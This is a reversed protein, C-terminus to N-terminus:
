YLDSAELLYVIPNDLVPCRIKASRTALSVEYYRNGRHYSIELSTKSKRLHYGNGCINVMTSGDDFYVSKTDAAWKTDGYILQVWQDVGDCAYGSRLKGQCGTIVKSLHRSVVMQRNLNIPKVFRLSMLEADKIPNNYRWHQLDDYLSNLIGLRAM